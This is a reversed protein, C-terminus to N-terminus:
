APIDLAIGARLVEDGPPAFGHDRAAELWAEM